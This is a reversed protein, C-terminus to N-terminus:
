DKAHSIIIGNLSMSKELDKRLTEAQAHNLGKKGVIVRTMEGKSTKMKESTASFGKSHLKDVLAAANASLSFTGVQVMMNKQSGASASSKSTEKIVQHHPQKHHPKVTTAAVTTEATAPATTPTPVPTTTPQSPTTPTASAPTTLTASTASASATPGSLDLDAQQLPAVNQTPDQPKDINKTQANKPKDMNQTKPINQTENEKPAQLVPQAVIPTAPTIPAPAIAVPAPITDKQQSPLSAINQTENQTKAPPMAAPKAFVSDSQIANPAPAPPMTQAFPPHTNIKPIHPQTKTNRLLVTLCFALLGVLVIVGLIRQKVTADM